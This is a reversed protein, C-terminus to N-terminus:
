EQRGGSELMYVDEHSLLVSSIALMSPLSAVAGIKRYFM